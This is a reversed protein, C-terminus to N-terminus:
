DTKSLRLMNSIDMIAVRHPRVRSYRIRPQCSRTAPMVRPRSSFARVLCVPTAAAAAAAAAPPPIITGGRRSINGRRALHLDDDRV